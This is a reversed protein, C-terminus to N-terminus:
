EEFWGRAERVRLPIGHRDPRPGDASVRTGDAAIAQVFGADLVLRIRGGCALISQADRPPVTPVDEVEVTNRFPEASSAVTRETYTFLFFFSFVRRRRGCFFPAQAQSRVKKKRKGVEKERMRGLGREVSCPIPTRSSLSPLTEDQQTRSSDDIRKARKWRGRRWGVKVVDKARLYRMEDSSFLYFRSVQVNKM